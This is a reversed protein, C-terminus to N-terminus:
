IAFHDDKRKKEKGGRRNPSDSRGRGKKGAMEIWPSSDSGKKDGKRARCLSLYFLPGKEGRKNSPSCSVRVRKKKM